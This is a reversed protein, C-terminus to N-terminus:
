DTILWNSENRILTYIVFKSDNKYTFVKIKDETEFQIEDVVVYSRSPVVVYTFYDKLQKLKIGYDQLVPNESLKKLFEDSGYKEVYSESLYSQWTNFNKKSIIKNLDAILAEIQEFTTEYEEETAVYVEPEAPIEIVPEPEPELVPEIVKPEEVIIVEEIIPEPTPTLCSTLVLITLLIYIYLYKIM